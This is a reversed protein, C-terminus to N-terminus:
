KKNKWENHAYMAFKGFHENVYKVKISWTNDNVDFRKKEHNHQNYFSNIIVIQMDKNDKYIDHKNLYNRLAWEVAQTSKAM